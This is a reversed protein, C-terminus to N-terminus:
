PLDSQKKTRRRDPEFIEDEEKACQELFEEQEWTGHFLIMNVFLDKLSKGSTLVTGDTKRIRFVGDEEFILRSQNQRIEDEVLDFCPYLSEVFDDIQKAFGLFAKCM